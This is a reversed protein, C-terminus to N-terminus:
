SAASKLDAKEIKAKLKALRPDAPRKVARIAQSVRSEDRMGLPESVWRRRVTTRGCLWWALVQKEAMGKASQELDVGAMGMVELGLALLGKGPTDQTGGGVM